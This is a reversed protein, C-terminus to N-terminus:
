PVFKISDVMERLETKVTEPTGPFYETVILVRFGDVDIVWVDWHNDPGQVFFGPDWPRWNNCGTIESPGTLSFFQGRHGGLEVDRPETIDLEPHALVADVFEDVTPGFRIDPIVHDTPLCPDSNLGVPYNTWGLVLAGGDPGGTGSATDRAIVPFGGLASYGAPVTVELTVSPPPTAPAPCDLPPDSCSNEVM